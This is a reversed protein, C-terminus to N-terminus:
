GSEKDKDNIARSAMPFWHWVKGVPFKHFSSRTAADFDIVGNATNKQKNKQKMRM